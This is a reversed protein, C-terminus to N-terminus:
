ELGDVFRICKEYIEYLQKVLNCKENKITFVFCIFSVRAM